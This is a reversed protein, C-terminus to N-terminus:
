SNKKSNRLRRIASCLSGLKEWLTKEKDTNSYLYYLVLWVYADFIIVFQTAYNTSALYIPESRIFLVAFQGLYHLILVCVTQTIKARILLPIVVFAALDVCSAFSANWLYLINLSFTYLILILYVKAPLRWDQKCSCLYFQMAITSIITDVLLKVAKHEDIFQGVMLIKENEVAAVFWEGFFLKIVSFAILFAWLLVIMARLVHKNM